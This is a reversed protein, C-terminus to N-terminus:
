FDYAGSSKIAGEAYRPECPTVKNKALYERILEENSPGPKSATRARRRPRGQFGFSRSGAEKSVSDEKFM